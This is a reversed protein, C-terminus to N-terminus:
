IRDPLKEMIKACGLCKQDEYFVAFQGPAIGQDQEPIRVALTGDKGKEWSCPYSLSGHRLKVRLAHSQSPERGSIWHCDRVFFLDEHRAGSNHLRSVYVRNTETEKGVVYWPGGSLGLGQRQGITYFWFGPHEGLCRGSEYEILEGCREGLHHRLFDSFRVKGLFCLGQSDKRQSAPLNKKEALMRVEEKTYAGLSFLARKLQYQQLAALFYTQDKLPDRSCLLESQQTHSNWSLLAYHGTAVKGYSSDIHDFFVGFKIWNNCLLDPNPTRGAKAEAITYAVIRKQYEQQLAVVCYSVDLLACTKQVYDLDEEWPCQSLHALEDELWIKLYFARVDCGKEKLIALALSSDVGGSVLVAVKM